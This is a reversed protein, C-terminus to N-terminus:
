IEKPRGTEQTFFREASAFSEPTGIDIFRGQSRFGYLGQGIWSPLLDEELSIARDPPIAELLSRHILYVGANIWGPAEMKTKEVFQAIRGDEEVAVSGYRNTNKKEKLLITAKAGRLRHVASLAKLNADIYSDGNMVLILDSLLLPLALRLAGGTGLPRAERSYELHIGKYSGGM